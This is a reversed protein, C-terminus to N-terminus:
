SVLGAIIEGWRVCDTEKCDRWSLWANLTHAKSHQTAALRELDALLRAHREVLDQVCSSFEPSEPQLTLIQKIESFTRLTM